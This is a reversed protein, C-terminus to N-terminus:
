EWEEVREVELVKTGEEENEREYLEALRRLGEEISSSAFVWQTLYDVHEVVFVYDNSTKVVVLAGDEPVEDYYVDGKADRVVIWVRAKRPKVPASGLENVLASMQEVAKPSVKVVKEVGVGM